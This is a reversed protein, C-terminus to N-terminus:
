NYNSGYRASSDKTLSKVLIVRDVCRGSCMENSQSRASLQNLASARTHYILWRGRPWTIVLVYVFMFGYSYRFRFVIYPRRRCGLFSM